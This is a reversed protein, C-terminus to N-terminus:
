LPGTLFYTLTQLDCLRDCTSMEVGSTSFCGSTLHSPTPMGAKWPCRTPNLGLGCHTLKQGLFFVSACHSSYMWPGGPQANVVLPGTEHVTFLRPVLAGPDRGQFCRSNWVTRHWVSRVQQLNLNSIFHHRDGEKIQNYGGTTIWLPLPNSQFSIM